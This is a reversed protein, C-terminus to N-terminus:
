FPFHHTHDLVCFKAETIGIKGRINGTYYKLLRWILIVAEVELFLSNTIHKVKHRITFYIISSNYASIAVVKNLMIETDTAM